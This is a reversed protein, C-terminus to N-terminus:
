PERCCGERGLLGIDHLIAILSQFFFVYGSFFVSGLLSRRQLRFHSFVPRGVVTMYPDVLNSVLSIGEGLTDSFTSLINVTPGLWGMLREDGERFKNFAQAQTRLLNSVAEPSQCTDLKKAFPHTDLPKGTLTQYEVIAANFIATFNDTSPGATQNTATM